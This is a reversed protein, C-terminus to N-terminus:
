WRFILKVYVSRGRSGFGQIEQYNSNFINELRFSIMWSTNPQWAAGLDFLNFRDITARGLAGYPGLDPDYILDARAGAHRWATTLLIRDSPRFGAEAYGTIRPKRILEDTDIETQIFSGYNYPQIHHGGTHTRDIDDPSFSVTGGSWTLNGRLHFKGRRYQGTVEAGRLNQRSLNMYTDGMYDLYSLENVPTDKNWLYVYEILNKTRSTFLSATFYSGTAFEKKVGVEFSLSEEPKLTRNGRTTFSGPDRSPDFLQYLSAANFGSSASAYLLMDNLRYSPSIEFTWNSGFRSHHSYRTGASLGFHDKEYTLQLFGYTTSANIDLTDYNVNSEYPVGFANSYYYTDFRMSESFNGIGGTIQIHKLTYQFLLENTLVDGAYTSSSYTKDYSGDYDVISSDNVNERFSNSWSGLFTLRLNEKPSYRAHYNVWNRKFAVFANDDDSFAGKDIDAKQDVRRYSIYTDWKNKSYGLKVSADQKTFDDSDATKYIGPTKLTDLTANLGTVDQRVIAGNAYWGNGMAYRMGINANGTFSAQGFTGAQAEIQGHLGKESARRTIINIAGGIASGGFMTSHAGRIIEIREVDLLSLEAFDITSSPSSPDTVRTGDILVVVQNSNAGRMFLSQNTGPTQTSGIVFIGPHNALLEGVSNLPMREFERRDIVTVSRPIQIIPQESRTVTIVIEDLHRVSDQQAYINQCQMFTASLFSLALIKKELKMPTKKQFLLLFASPFDANAQAFSSM